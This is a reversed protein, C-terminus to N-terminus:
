NLLRHLLDFKYRSVQQLAIFRHNRRVVNRASRELNKQEKGVQLVLTFCPRWAKSLALYQGHTTIFHCWRAFSMDHIWALQLSLLCCWARLFCVFFGRWKSRQAIVKINLLTRSTTLICTWSCNWWALHLPEHNDHQRHQFCYQRRKRSCYFM